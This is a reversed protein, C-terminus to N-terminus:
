CVGWCKAVLVAGSRAEQFVKSAVVPLGAARLRRMVPSDIFLSSVVLVDAPAVPEFAIPVLGLTTAHALAKQV